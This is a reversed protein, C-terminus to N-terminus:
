PHHYRPCLRHTYPNPVVATGRPNEADGGHFVRRALVAENPHSTSPSYFVHLKDVCDDQYYTEIAYKTHNSVTVVNMRENEFFHHYSKIPGSKAIKEPLFSKIILKLKGLVSGPYRLFLWDFPLEIGRLGHLTSIMDCGKYDILNAQPLASYILNIGKSSVINDVITNSIDVIEINYTKCLELIENSIWRKSDWMAVMPVNRKCLTTFVIEAYKGGGHQKTTGYGQTATLDFLLMIYISNLLIM